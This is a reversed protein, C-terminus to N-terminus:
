SSERLPVRRLDLVGLPFLGGGDFPPSGDFFPTGGGGFATPGPRMRWGDGAPPLVVSTHM